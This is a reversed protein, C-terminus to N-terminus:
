QEKEKLLEEEKTEIVGCRRKRKKNGNDERGIM